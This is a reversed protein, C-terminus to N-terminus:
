KKEKALLYSLDEDDDVPTTAKGATGAVPVVPIAPQKKTPTAAAKAAVVAAAREKLWRVALKNIATESEGELAEAADTAAKKWIERVNAGPYESELKAWVRDAKLAAVETKLEALVAKQSEVESGVEVTAQALSVADDLVDFNGALKERVEALKSKAAALQQQEKPTLPESKEELAEIRRIAAANDQQLKQLVRDPTGPKLLEKQEAAEDPTKEPEPSEAKTPETKESEEAPSAKTETESEPPSELLAMLEDNDEM